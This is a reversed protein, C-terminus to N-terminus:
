SLIPRLHFGRVTRVTNYLAILSLLTLAELYMFSPDLINLGTRYENVATMGFLLAGYMSLFTNLWHIWGQEPNTIGAAIVLIIASIVAGGPSLPLDAGTSEAIILVIASIVFLVRVNGGYYHRVRHRPPVISEFNGGGNGESDTSPM